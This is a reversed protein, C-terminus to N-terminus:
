FSIRDRYEDTDCSILSVFGNGEYRLKKIDSPSPIQKGNEEMDYLMLCLADEAMEFANQLNEGFTNCGAIDPFYICYKSGEKEFVAPYLYKM